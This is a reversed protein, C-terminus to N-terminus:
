VPEYSSQVLGSTFTVTRTHRLVVDGETRGFLSIGQGLIVPVRTLIMDSILREKLFSQIVKGGDVYARRWGEAALAQMLPRPALTSIRVKGALDTRLSGQSLTGSLVVVPKTFPWAGFTLAKDFTGRGMVLGDVSNMFAAYGTNEGSTAYKDLWDIGGDARAIYGDVSVAIFVHGTSTTPLHRIQDSSQDAAYVRRGPAGVPGRTARGSSLSRSFEPGM